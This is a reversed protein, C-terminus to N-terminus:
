RCYSGSRYEATDFHFHDQHHRDSNPGLVTGFPGCASKHLQRLVRGKHGKNWDNLVTIDNGDRLQIAAIDIANGKAHESLRAGRRSNRTRCAYHAAVKLGTAGGGMKGVAPTLGSDVWGKLTRATRCNMLSSQSLTIGGVSTVRVAADIGCAGNGPVPGVVVGKISPDGCVSGKSSVVPDNSRGGVLSCGMLILPILLAVRM